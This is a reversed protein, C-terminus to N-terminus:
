RHPRPDITALLYGVGSAIGCAVVVAAWMAALRTRSWGALVLDASPALAQPINSVIVAALFSVSVATGAGAGIGFILSEPVGDVVSGVVIGLAGAAAGAGSFLRDVVADGVIFVGAGVLLWLSLELGGLAEAQDTLDM